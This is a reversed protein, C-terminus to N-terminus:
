GNKKKVKTLNLKKVRQINLDADEETLNLPVKNKHCIDIFEWLNVGPIESAKGFSVKGKKYEEIAMEIKIERVARSILHRIISSKDLKILNQIEEIESSLKSPIVISLRESM